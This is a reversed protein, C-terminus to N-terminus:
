TRPDNIRGEFLIAGTTEDTIYFLFPRDVVFPEIHSPMSAAVMAIATVAAAETGAEAVDIVARHLVQGIAIPAQAPPRGTMGSFDAAHADFARRMGAQQFIKGAEARFSTKFRPLALDVETEDTLDRFMAALAPADLSRAVAEAGGIENPLVVVMALQNVSYPLRVARFDPRTLLAYHGRRHMTPVKASKAATLHFDADSTARASFPV